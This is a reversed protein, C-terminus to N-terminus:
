PPYRLTLSAPEGLASRVLQPIHAVDVAYRQAAHAAGTEVSGAERGRRPIETRAALVGARDLHITGGAGELASTLGTSAEAQGHVDPASLTRGAKAPPSVEPGITGLLFYLGSRPGPHRSERPRRHLMEYHARPRGRTERRAPHIDFEDGRRFLECFQRSFITRLQRLIELAETLIRARFEAIDQYSLSVFRPIRMVMRQDM